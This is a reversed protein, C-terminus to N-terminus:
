KAIQGYRSAGLTSSDLGQLGVFGSDLVPYVQFGSDMGSPELFSSDQRPWKLLGSDVGLTDWSAIYLGARSASFWYGLRPADSNYFGARSASDVPPVQLGSDM